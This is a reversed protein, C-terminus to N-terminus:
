DVSLLNASAQLYLALAAKTRLKQLDSTGFLILVERIQGFVKESASVRHNFAFCQGNLDAGLICLSTAM